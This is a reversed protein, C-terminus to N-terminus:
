HFQGDEKEGLDWDMDAEILRNGRLMYGRLRKPASIQSDKLAQERMAVTTALPMIVEDEPRTYRNIFTARPELSHNPPSGHVLHQHFFIADGAEGEVCVANPSSLPWEPLGLHSATDSHPIYGTDCSGPFVYLPGNNLALSTDVVYNLTSVPGTGGFEFFASDQHCKVVHGGSPEKYVLQGNGFLEVNGSGFIAEVIDLTLPECACRFLESSTQYDVALVMIQKDRVMGDSHYAAAPLQDGQAARSPGEMEQVRGIVAQSRNAEFETGDWAAPIFLTGDPTLWGEPIKKANGARELNVSQAVTRDVAEQIGDVYRKNLGRVVLCGHEEFIATAKQVVNPDDHAVELASIQLSRCQFSSGLCKQRFRTTHRVLATRMDGINKLAM